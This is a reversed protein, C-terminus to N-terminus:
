AADVPLWVGGLDRTVREAQFLVLASMDDVSADSFRSLPGALSIAGIFGRPGFVPAAIAATDSKRDQNSVALGTRRIAQYRATEDESAAPETFAMLVQGAAGTHLPLEHGPTVYLLVRHVHSNVRYLCVRRDGERVHFSASEATSKSLQRLAPMVHDELRFSQQYLEGLHLLAPGLQFGGNGPRRLYGARELSAALRLITSKYFGTREALEALTLTADGERFAALIALARDVAAVGPTADGSM